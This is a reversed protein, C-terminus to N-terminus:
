ASRGSRYDRSKSILYTTIFIIASLILLIISPWFELGIKLPYEGMFEMGSVFSQALLSNPFIKSSYLSLGLFIAPAAVTSAASNRSIVAVLMGLSTYMALSSLTLLLLIAVPLSYITFTLLYILLLLYAAFLLFSVVVTFLWLGLYLKFRSVPSTFFFAEAGRGIFGGFNGAVAGPYALISIFIYFAMISIINVQNAIFGSNSVASVYSYSTMFVLLLFIIERSYFPDVLSSIVRIYARRRDDLTVKM